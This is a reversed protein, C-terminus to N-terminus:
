RATTLPASLRISANHESIALSNTCHVLAQRSAEYDQSPKPALRRMSSQTASRSPSFDAAGAKSPKFPGRM